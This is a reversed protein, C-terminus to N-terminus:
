DAQWQRMELAARDLDELGTAHIGLGDFCHVHQVVSFDALADLFVAVPGGNRLQVDFAFEDAARVDHHVHVFRAFQLLHDVALGSVKDAERWAM